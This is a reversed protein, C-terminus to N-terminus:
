AASSSRASCQATLSRSRARKSCASESDSRSSWGRRAPRRARRTWASISPAVLSSSRDGRRSPDARSGPRVLRPACRRPARRAARSARELGRREVVALRVSSRSWWSRLRSAFRPGTLGIAICSYSTAALLAAVEQAVCISSRTALRLASDLTTAAMSRLIRSRKRSVNSSTSACKWSTKATRNGPPWAESASVSGSSGSVVPTSTMACGRPM